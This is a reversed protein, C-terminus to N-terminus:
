LGRVSGEFFLGVIMSWIRPLNCLLRPLKDALGTSLIRIERRSEGCHPTLGPSLSHATAAAPLGPHGLLWGVWEVFKLFEKFLFYNDPFFAWIVANLPM